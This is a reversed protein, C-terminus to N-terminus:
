WEFAHRFEIGDIRLQKPIVKSCQDADIRRSVLLVVIGDYALNRLLEGLLDDHGNIEAEDQEALGDNATLDRNTFHSEM